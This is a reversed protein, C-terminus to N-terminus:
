FMVYRDMSYVGETLPNESRFREDLCQQIALSGERIVQNGLYFLTKPEGLACNVAM